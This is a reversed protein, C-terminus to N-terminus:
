MNKWTTGHPGMHDWTTGAAHLDICIRWDNYELRQRHLWSVAVVMTRVGRWRRHQWLTAAPVLPMSKLATGLRFASTLQHTTVSRDKNHDIGLSTSTLHPLYFRGGVSMMLAPLGEGATGALM